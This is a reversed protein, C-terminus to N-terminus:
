MMRIRECDPCIWTPGNTIGWKNEEFCVTCIQFGCPCNWCFDQKQKCCHCRYEGIKKRRFGMKKKEGENKV